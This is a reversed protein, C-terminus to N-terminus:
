KFELSNWMLDIIQRGQMSLDQNNLMTLIIIGEDRNGISAVEYISSNDKYTLTAKTVQITQGSKLTRTFDQRNMTYGYSVSEKTVENLMLENMLTPNMHAYSQIILGSGEATFLMIQEIGQEINLSSIKYDKLYNMTFLASTYTLTDKLRVTFAIKKKNVVVQYEQDLSIELEQGEIEIVYDQQALLHISFILCTLTVIIKM